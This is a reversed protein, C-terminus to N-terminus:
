EPEETMEAWACHQAIASQYRTVPAFRRQLMQRNDPNQLTHNVLNEWQSAGPPLLMGYYDCRAPIEPLLLYDEQFLGLQEALGLLLIGDSVFADVRGQQLAQIGQVRGSVGSFTVLEAEPFFTKAADVGTTKRLAGVREVATKAENDTETNVMFQIGTVFFPTSFVVSPPENAATATETKITNPGCELDITRNEILAERNTTTSPHLEMLLATKGLTRRVESELFDFFTLCLGAFYGASDVYGFPAADLRMGVRVIGTEAIRALVPDSLLEDSQTTSSEKILVTTDLQEEALEPAAIVSSMGTFVLGVSFGLIPACLITM